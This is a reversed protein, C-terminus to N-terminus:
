VEDMAARTLANPVKLELPLAPDVAIRHFLMRVAESHRLSMAGLVTTETDMRVHLM